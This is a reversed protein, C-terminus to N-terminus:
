AVGKKGARDAPGIEGAPIGLLLQGGDPGPQEREAIEEDIGAVPDLGRDVLLLDGVGVDSGARAEPNGSGAGADQDAWAPCLARHACHGCLPGPRPRWDGTLRAREIALGLADLQRELGELMQPSPRLTLVEPEGLQLLRLERPMKGLARWCVLAYFKLGFFSGLAWEHSPTRGTKYDALVWEGDDQLEIRDVIGRLAMRDGDHAVRAEVEHIRVSAPDELRFYNRIMKVAESLWSSEEEPTLALGELEEDERLETWVEGLLRRAAEITRDPSPLRCLRELVAHVITGRARSPDPPEPLRDIARFKFLLPCAKFDAARSPSLAVLETEVVRISRRSRGRTGSQSARKEM